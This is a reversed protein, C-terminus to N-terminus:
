LRVAERERGRVSVTILCRKETATLTERQESFLPGGPGTDAGNTLVLPIGFVGATKALGVPGSASAPHWAFDGGRAIPFGKDASEPLDAAILIISVINITYVRRDITL